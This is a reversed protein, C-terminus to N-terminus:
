LQIGLLMVDDIQEQDNGKWDDFTQNLNQYQEGIPLHGNAEFFERLRRIMFKRGKPGGFQDTIGDSFLYIFTPTKIEYTHKNYNHAGRQEACSISHRDGEIQQLGDANMLYLPRQAGAFELLKKKRNIRVIAVDMGQDSEFEKASQAFALKIGKDMEDLVKAPDDIRKEIIIQNLLDSGIMSMFAGAVGHGTCDVAAAWSIDGNTYVWYFDGGVTDKPRYFAFHGDFALQMERESPLIAMQINKAYDISETIHNNQAEVIEKQKILEKTREKVTSELIRKEELLRRERLKVYMYTMILAMIGLTIYFGWTRWLPPTIKFSLTVPEQNCIGLSNCAMLKFTYEGPPLNPYNAYEQNTRPNWNSEFGELIWRFTVDKPRNHNIGKFRFRLSNNIYSLNLNKPLGLETTEFGREAWNVSNYDLQLETLFTNPEFLDDSRENETFRTIGESTGIWLQNSHSLMAGRKCTKGLFGREQDYERVRLSDGVEWLQELGHVTGIFLKEGLMSLSRLSAGRLGSREDIQKIMSDNMLFLGDTQSAIAIGFPSDCIDTIPSNAALEIEKKEGFSDLSFVKGSATGIMVSGDSVRTLTTINEAELGNSIPIIRFSFGDFSSLGSPTGILLNGEADTELCNINNDALGFEDSYIYLRKGDWQFLGGFDMTGFWMNGAGDQGIASIQRDNIDPDNFARVFSFGDYKLVGGTENAVWIQGNNSKFIFSPDIDLEPSSFFHSFALNKVRVLGKKTGIWTNGEVDNLVALVENSPMGNEETLNLLNDNRLRSIGYYTGLWVDGLRNVSVDNIQNSVLEATNSVNFRGNEFLSLGGLTGILAKQKKFTISTVYNNALGNGKHLYSIDTASLISIGSGFTGIWMNGNPHQAIARTHNAVLGDETTKSSWSGNKYVSVGGFTAVWVSGDAAQFLDHIENNVLGSTDNVTWVSDNDLVSLGGTQHGVWIRGASDCMIATCNNKALGDRLSYNRFEKGDFRSVGSNTAVWIYGLHDQCLDNVLSSSLGSESGYIELDYSQAKAVHFSALLCAVM